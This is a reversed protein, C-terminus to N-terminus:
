PKAGPQQVGARAFVLARMDQLHAETAQLQGASGHGSRPRLGLAWLQELLVQAMDPSLRMCPEVLSGPTVPEFQMPKAASMRGNERVGARLVFADGWPLESTLNLTNIM